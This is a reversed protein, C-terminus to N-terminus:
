HPSLAWRSLSKYCAFSSAWTPAKEKLQLMKTYFPNSMGNLSKGKKRAQWAFYNADFLRMTLRSILFLRLCSPRELIYFIKCAITLSWAAALKALRGVVVVQHLATSQVNYFCM